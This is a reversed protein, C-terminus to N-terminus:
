AGPDLRFRHPLLKGAQMVELGSPTRFVVSMEPNFECMVQRCAGCPSIPNGNGLVVALAEIKVEEGYAAIAGFIANREACMTLGYSSNEVNCGIVTEGSTTVLAAGVKLQSYPAWAHTAAHTADALLQEILDDDLTDVFSEPRHRSPGLM